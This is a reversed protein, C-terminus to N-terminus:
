GNLRRPRRSQFHYSNHLPIIIIGYLKGWCLSMRCSVAAATYCGCNFGQAHETEACILNTGTGCIEPTKRRPLSLVAAFLYSESAGGRAAGWVHWGAGPPRLQLVEGIDRDGLHVCISWARHWCQQRHCSHLTRERDGVNGKKEPPSPRGHVHDHSAVCLGAAKAKKIKKKIAGVQEPVSLSMCDPVNLACISEVRACLCDGSYAELHTPWRRVQLVRPHCPMSSGRVKPMSCITM